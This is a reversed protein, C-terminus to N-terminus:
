LYFQKIHRDSPMAQSGGLLAAIAPPALAVFHVIFLGRLEEWCAMSSEPLNLPWARPVGMLAM